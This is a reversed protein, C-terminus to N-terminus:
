NEEYYEIIKLLKDKNKKAEEITRFCLDNYYRLYDASNDRWFQMDPVITKTDLILTWYKENMKPKFPLKKAQVKGTLMDILWLPDVLDHGSHLGDEQLTFHMTYKDGDMTICDAKFEENLEVGLLGAVEKMYNM